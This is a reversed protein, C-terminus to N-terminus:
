TNKITRASKLLTLIREIIYRNNKLDKLLIQFRLQDTKRIPLSEIINKIQPLLLKRKEDYKGDFFMRLLENLHSVGNGSKNFQKTM